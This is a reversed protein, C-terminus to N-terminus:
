KRGSCIKWAGHLSRHLYLAPLLLVGLRHTNLGYADFMYSPSPFLVERLLRLRGTADPLSRLSSMLEHHWRRDVALYEASAEAGAAGLCHVVSDPVRTGFLEEASRLAYACIRAVRKARALAAFQQLIPLACTQVGTM